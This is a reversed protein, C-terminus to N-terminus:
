HMFVLRSPSAEEPPSLSFRNLCMSSGKTKPNSFNWVTGVDMMEALVSKANSWAMQNGDTSTLVHQKVSSLFSSVALLPMKEFSGIDDPLGNEFARTTSTPDAVVLVPSFPRFRM